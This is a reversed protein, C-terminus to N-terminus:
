LNCESTLGLNPLTDRQATGQRRLQQTRAQMAQPSLTRGSEHLVWDVEFAYERPAGAEAGAALWHNFSIAM